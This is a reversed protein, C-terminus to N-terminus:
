KKQADYAKIVKDTLDLDDEIMFAIRRDLVMTCKESSAVKKIIPQIDSLIKQTLEANKKQIQNSYEGRLRNVENIDKILKERKEKWAPSDQKLAKLEKEMAALKNEKEKVAATKSEIEKKIVSQANQAAKSESMIKNMNVFGIKLPSSSQAMGMTVTGFSFIFAVIVMLSLKWYKNKEKM